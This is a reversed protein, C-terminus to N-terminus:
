SSDSSTRMQVDRCFTMVSAPLACETRLVARLLLLLLLQPSSWRVDTVVPTTARLSTITLVVGALWGSECEACRQPQLEIFYRRGCENDRTVHRWRVFSLLGVYSRLM